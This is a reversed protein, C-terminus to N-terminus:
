RKGTPGKWSTVRINWRDERLRAVHGAWKWKLNKAYILADTVKSINRIKTSREIGQQCTIVKNKIKKLTYRHKVHM